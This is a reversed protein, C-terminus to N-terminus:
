SSPSTLPPVKKSSTRKGKLRTTPTESRCKLRAIEGPESRGFQINRQLFLLSMIKKAWNPTSSKWLPIRMSELKLRPTETPGSSLQLDNCSNTTKTTSFHSNELQDLNKAPRFSAIRYEKHVTSPRPKPKTSNPSRQTAKDSSDIRLLHCPPRMSKWRQLRPKGSSNRNTHTSKTM